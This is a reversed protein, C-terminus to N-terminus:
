YVGSNVQVRTGSYPTPIMRVDGRMGRQAMLAELQARVSRASSRQNFDPYSPNILNAERIQQPYYGMQSADLGQHQLMKLKVTDMDIRPDWGEWNEDPLERNQFYEELEPRKEVRMGWAAQYIRRELRGATSMIAEREKEPATLFARFHERKRKPIALELEDASAGYLDAGYMTMKSQQKFQNALQTDGQAMAMNFGRMSKTYELIDVYEEIALERKREEPVFREGTIAERANTVSSVSAGTLGGIMRGVSKGQPTAGFLHGLVALGAAAPIPSRDAAKYVAPKVFDDIPSQWQPFSSGYVNEREWDEVATRDPMFKTHFYTDMHRFREWMGSPSFRSHEYPTFEHKRKISEVKDLTYLLEEQEAPSSVSARVDALAQKYEASYPAVDALIKLRDMRGYRGTEDPRLGHLREYGIGPLRMEGEKAKVYPDGTKFDTFYDSGPLWPAKTNMTNLIPNVTDLGRPKPIFRRVIESVELNAYEGELPTPVDGLGGLNLDWFQRSTGYAESASALVPKSLQYEMSGLGLKDRAAGFAFGYIGAFEQMEYALQSSQVELSSPSLPARALM